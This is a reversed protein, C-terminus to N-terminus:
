SKACVWRTLPPDQHQQRCFLVLRTQHQMGVEHSTPIHHQRDPGRCDLRVVCAVVDFVWKERLPYKCFALRQRINYAAADGVWRERPPYACFRSACGPPQFAQYDCSRSTHPASNRGPVTDSGAVGGRDATKHDAFIIFDKIANFPCLPQDLNEM